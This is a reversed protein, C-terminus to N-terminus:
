FIDTALRAGVETPNLSVGATSKLFKDKMTVRKIKPVAAGTAASM